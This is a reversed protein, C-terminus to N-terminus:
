KIMHTPLPPQPTEWIIKSPALMGEGVIGGLLRYLGYDERARDM